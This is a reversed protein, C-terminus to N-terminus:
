IRGPRLIAPDLLDKRNTMAIVLINNLKVIGDICTLLQNVISDYVDLTLSFFVLATPAENKAYLM